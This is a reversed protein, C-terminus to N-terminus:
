TEEVRLRAQDAAVDVDGALQRRITAVDRGVRDVQEEVAELRESLSRLRRELREVESASPLNLAGMAAQQAELAKDRAGFAASIAQNFVPNELLAQALDGIAQESRSRMGEDEGVAPCSLQIM